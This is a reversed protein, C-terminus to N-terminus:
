MTFLASGFLRSGAGFYFTYGGIPLGYMSLVELPPALTFLPGQYTVSFGPIWSGGSVNYYYWGFPTGAVVWWDAQVGPYDGPDLEITVSIPDGELISVPGDSGNAKIDPVPEPLNQCSEWDGGLQKTNLFDRLAANNTYLYNNCFNSENDILSTLEMLEDPIPGVLQNANLLLEELNTLNGVESPITGTLQNDWLELSLLSALNGLEPPINGTLQNENLDLYELYILDGLQYPITGSLQNESLELLVLNVLNGLEPPIDGTLQNNDLELEVLNILKGLQSPITGILQNDNLDLEILNVLDGLEPPINGTLYNNDDLDLYQLCSLEGLEKPIEGSLQNGDLNLKSLNALNGLEPRIPGILQNSALFLVQLNALNGLESPITGNLNNDYLWIEYVSTSDANIGYWNGETGPMAFGDGALPLTKWGYNYYWNDGNTSNYLAILAARELAPIAAYANSFLSNIVVIALFLLVCRHKMEKGEM